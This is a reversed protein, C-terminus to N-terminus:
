PVHMRVYFPVAGATTRAVPGAGQVCVVQMPMLHALEQDVREQLTASLRAAEAPTSGRPGEVALLFGADREVVWARSIAPHESLLRRLSAVAGPLAAHDFRNRSDLDTAPWETAAGEVAPARVGRRGLLLAGGIGAALLLILIPLVLAWTGLRDVVQAVPLGLPSGDGPVEAITFPLCETADSAGTTEDSLTLQACYRGPELLELAPGEVTTSTGAYVSDMVVPSEALQTGDDHRLVFSGSPRLHVNGRNAVDFSVVSLDAVEDHYVSGISLAPREEGPVEIAVAIANRNVQDVAITGSGRVPEANEIVLATVYEGPPTDEPVELDFDIVLADEPGLPVEQSPYTLWLTAGSPREGFLDAGFGGNVITYVDSAYTRAVAEEHGFNAAEVQLGVAEGPELTLDFYTGDHDVPTLGLRAPEHSASVAGAWGLAVILASLLTGVVSRVM